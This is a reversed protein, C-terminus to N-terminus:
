KKKKTIAVIIAAVVAAAAVGIAIWAWLPFGEETETDSSADSQAESAAASADATTDDSPEASEEGSTEASVDASEEVSTEASVDASEEVSTDESTVDSTEGPVASEDAYIEIENLFCFYTTADLVIYVKIYRATVDDVSLTGWYASGTDSAASLDLEGLETWSSNDASAFINVESPTGVSSGTTTCFNVKIESIGGTLAGLDVVATGAGDPANITNPDNAATSYYFAYWANDYTIGSQVKGDTLDATYQGFGAPIDVSKGLAVNVDAASVAMSFSLVLILSIAISILKKM